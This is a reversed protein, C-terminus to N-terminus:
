AVLLEELAQQYLAALRRKAAPETVVVFRWSEGGLGTPAQAAINICDLIDQRAVPRDFDLRRRVSRTTSLVRDVSDLDISDNSAEAGM